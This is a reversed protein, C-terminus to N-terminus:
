LDLDVLSLYVVVLRVKFSTVNIQINKKLGKRRQALTFVSFFCSVHQFHLSSVNKM